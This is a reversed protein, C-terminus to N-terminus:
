GEQHTAIYEAVRRKGAATMKVVPKGSASRSWKPRNEQREPAPTAERQPHRFQLGAKKAAKRAANSM